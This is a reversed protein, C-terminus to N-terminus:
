VQQSEQMHPVTMHGSVPELKGGKLQYVADVKELIREDHTVIIKTAPVSFIAEIVVRATEKDLHNTPEDLLLIPYRKLFLRLMALRQRQGGSFNRGGEVLTIDNLNQFELYDSLNLDRLANQIKEPDYGVGFLSLNEMLTGSFLVGDQSMFGINERLGGTNLDAINEQGIRIQGGTPRHIKLLLNLLTTKGSGSEGKIAVSGNERVHLHVDQLVPTKDYQFSVGQFSIDGGSFQKGEALHDDDPTEELIDLIRLLMPRVTNWNIISSAIRAVPTFIISSMAIFFFVNSLTEQNNNYDMFGIVLFLMVSMMALSGNVADVTYQQRIRATASDLYRDFARAWKDRVPRFIGSAKIFYHEKLFENLLGRHDSLDYNEVLALKHLRLGFVFNFLLACIIFSVLILAYVANIFTMFVLVPLLVVGSVVLYVFDNLVYNRIRELGMIRVILDGVSRAQVQRWPLRFVHEFLRKTCVRDVKKQYSARILGTGIQIFVFFGLLATMVMFSELSLKGSHQIIEILKQVAFPFGFMVLQALLTVLALLVLRRYSISEKVFDAFSYTSSDPEGKRGASAAKIQETPTLILVFGSFKKKFVELSLTAPGKKPDIMQVRRRVMKEVIVFHNLEWYAIAPLSIESLQSPDTIRLVTTRFGYSESVKKLDLFSWGSQKNVQKNKRVESPRVPIGFYHLLMTLCAPGCDAHTMQPIFKVKKSLM